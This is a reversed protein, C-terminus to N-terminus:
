SPPMDLALGGSSRIKELTSNYLALRMEELAGWETAAFVRGGLGELRMIELTFTFDPHPDILTVWEQQEPEIRWLDREGPALGSLIVHDFEEILWPEDDEPRLLAARFHILWIVQKTNNEANFEIVPWELYGRNRKYVRSKRLKFSDLEARVVESGARAEELRNVASHVQELRQRRAEAIIGDATMGGLPRYLALVLKPNPPNPGSIFTVTEGVLYKLAEDLRDREELEIQARLATLSNALAEVSSTDLTTPGCALTVVALAAFAALRFSHKKRSVRIMIGARLDSSGGEVTGGSDGVTGRGTHDRESRLISNTGFQWESAVLQVFLRGARALDQPGKLTKVM